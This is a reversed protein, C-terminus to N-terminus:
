APHHGPIWATALRGAASELIEPPNFSYSLRVSPALTTGFRSGAGVTVGGAAALDILGRETHHRRSRLWLFFGGGPADFEVDAPLRDTLTGALADRREKLRARLWRLYGDYAGTRVLTAVALSTTHNVCGGSVFLGHAGLQDAMVPEALLWGLRLGPALTKSFTRLRIVGRYGALGALSCPTEQGDLELEAYADDEVILVDHRSAVALLEARRAAPVLLGTPNHFTPTLYVFAPNRGAAREDAVADGLAVPDMGGSDMPVERLRLGCDLFLARALDYCVRDTFVVDGPSALVTAILQLAQSTGATIVVNEAGCVRGETKAVRDALVERLPLAGQNNGYALAASGFEALANAYAGRMLDVPLLGPELYGPGLDTVGAPSVAQVVGPRWSRTHSSPGAAAATPPEGLGPTV